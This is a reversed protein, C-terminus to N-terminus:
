FVAWSTWSHFLSYSTHSFYAVIKPNAYFIVCLLIFGPSFLDNHNNFLIVGNIFFKSIQVLVISFLMGILPELKRLVSRTQFTVSYPSYDVFIHLFTSKRVWDDYANINSQHVLMMGLHWFKAANDPLHCNQLFSFKFVSNIISVQEM